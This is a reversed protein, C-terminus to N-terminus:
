GELLASLIYDAEYMVDGSKCVKLADGLKDLFDSKKLLVGHRTGDTKYIMIEIVDEAM